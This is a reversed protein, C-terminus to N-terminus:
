SNLNGKLQGSISSFLSFLFVQQQKGLCYCMLGLWIESILLFIDSYKLFQEIIFLIINIFM